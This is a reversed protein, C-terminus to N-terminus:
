DENRRVTASIGLLAFCVGGLAGALLAFLGLVGVKVIETASFAVVAAVLGAVAGVGVAAWRSWWGMRRLLLSAPVAFFLLTGAAVPVSIALLLLLSGVRGGGVLHVRGVSPEAIMLMLWFAIAAVLPAALVAMRPRAAM